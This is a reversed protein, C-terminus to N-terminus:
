EVGAARTAYLSQSSNRSCMLAVWTLVGGTIVALSATQSSGFLGSSVAALGTGYVAGTIQWHLLEDRTVDWGMWSSKASSILLSMSLSFMAPLCFMAATQWYDSLENGLMALGTLTHGSGWLLWPLSILRVYESHSAAIGWLSFAQAVLGFTVFGLGILSVLPDNM